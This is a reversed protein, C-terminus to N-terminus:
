TTRTAIAPSVSSARRAPYWAGLLGAMWLIPMGGAVFRLDLRPLGYHQTLWASAVLALLCGIAIGITTILASECLFHVLIDVRRAGLARRIGIQRSRARVNFMALGYTGVCTVILLATMVGILFLTMNYDARYSLDKFFRLPRSWEIIRHLDSDQMHADAIRM